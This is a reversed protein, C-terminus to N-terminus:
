RTLKTSDSLALNIIKYKQEDGGDAADAREGLKVPWLPQKDCGLFPNPEYPSNKGFRFALSESWSSKTLQDSSLPYDMDNICYIQIIGGWIERHQYNSILVIRLLLRKPFLSFKGLIQKVMWDMLAKKMYLSMILFLQLFQFLSVHGLFTSNRLFGFLCARAHNWFQFCVM